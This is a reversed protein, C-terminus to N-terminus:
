SFQCVLGGTIALTVIWYGVHVAIYKFGRKEFIAGMGVVPLAIMIAAITGHLAGHKFTRFNHGYKEMFNAYFMGMESKPDHIGPENMLISMFHNQHIVIFQPAATIFFSFLYGVLLMVIMNGEKAKEITMGSAKMWANGFGMKSYWIAGIIMPTLAILLLIVLKM